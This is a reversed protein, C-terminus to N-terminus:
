LPIFEATFHRLYKPQKVIKYGSLENKIEYIEKMVEVVYDIHSQTHTRRPIALRVLEMESPLDAGTNQDVKGFGVSGIEVTRIGGARYMEVSLSQGPFQLPPIHKLLTKADIYVAHGGPPQIIPFGIASLHEGLYRTEAIRYQLYSEDLVEELGVAIAELDRGALGGYTPFGETLILLEKEMQALADDNTCLFGGINAMGDKKASMTCGDGYTMMEQVIEKISKEDYGQEREKIFFANEAFRAADFYLPIDYQNLIQKVERVNQMSVPQGGGTNNTITLMCIPINEAGYHLIAKKLKEVDMNGKFPHIKQPNLGEDIVLDIAKAGQFEVNARTTDFHSNNLIVSTPKCIVSFLIREAARGQHTPIIHKFGFINKVVAEFRQFSQSGAYSEDGRFMASWQNSSMAGTGSDTLLDILVDQAKVKFLNYHAEKLINVRDDVTTMKIPEVTKIIFPEIVTRFTSKM